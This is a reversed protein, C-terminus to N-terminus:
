VSGHCALVCVCCQRMCVCCRDGAGAVICLSEIGSMLLPVVGAAIVNLRLSANVAVNNFFRFAADTCVVAVRVHVYVRFVM